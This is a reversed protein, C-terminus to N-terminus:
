SSTPGSSCLGCAPPRTAPTWRVLRQGERLEAVLTALSFGPRDAARAAVITLALPLRGCLSVLEAAAVPEAAVRGTSIRRSLVERSEADSLADLRTLRAGEAAALGTLRTRSTVVVACWSSAPLLPRVQDEDRANDLVLLMRRDALLTRYLGTQAEPSPPIREAAVGLADLFGRIAAIPEVPDGAPSFGRLDVYLQGDPFRDAVQHAWHLALATKGIGAMGGISAIAPAEGLADELMGDLVALEAARGTFHRASAPLQRPVEPRLAAARPEPATVASALRAPVQGPAVALGPDAVLIRSQMERLEPGPEMGLERDLLTRVDRYVQLADAQRGCRYCALMLQAAFRERLPHEAVLSQLEAVIEGSRGLRLDAEIRTEILQLRLEGLRPLESRHLADSPVDVLPVGRWMGLASRLLESARDWQGAAAADLAASRLLNVEAVDFEAPSRVQVLYGPPRSTIRAGSEGLVRRLRMVYTRVAAAANPPASTGWLVDALRDVSVIKDASLLLAALIIRQKAAPVAIAQNTEGLVQLSGLIGFRM